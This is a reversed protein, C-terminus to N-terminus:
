KTKIKNQIITHYLSNITLYAQKHHLLSYFFFVWIRKMSAIAHIIGTHLQWQSDNGFHSLVSPCENPVMVCLLHAHTFYPPSYAVCEYVIYKTQYFFIKNWNIQMKHIRFIKIVNTKLSMCARLLLVNLTACKTRANRNPKRVYNGNLIIEIAKGDVHLVSTEVCCIM